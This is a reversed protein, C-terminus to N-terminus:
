STYLAVKVKDLLEDDVDTQTCAVAKELIKVCLNILIEGMKDEDPMRELLMEILYSFLPMLLSLM